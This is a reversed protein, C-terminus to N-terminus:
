TQEKGSGSVHLQRSRLEPFRCLISFRARRHWDQGKYSGEVGCRQLDAHLVLSAGPHM